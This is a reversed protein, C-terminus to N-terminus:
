LPNWTLLLYLNLSQTNCKLCFSGLNWDILAYKRNNCLTKSTKKKDAEQQKIEEILYERQLHKLSLNIPLFTVM